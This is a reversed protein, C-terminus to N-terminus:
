CTQGLHMNLIRRHNPPARLFGISWRFRVFFFWWLAVVHYCFCTDSTYGFCLITIRNSPHRFVFVHALHRRVTQQQLKRWSTLFVSRCKVRTGLVIPFFRSEVLTRRILFHRPPPVQKYSFAQSAAGAYLFISPLLGFCLDQGLKQPCM